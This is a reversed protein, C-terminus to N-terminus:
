EQQQQEGVFEKVSISVSWTTHFSPLPPLTPPTAPRRKDNGQIVYDLQFAM